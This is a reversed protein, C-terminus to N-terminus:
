VGVSLSPSVSKGPSTQYQAGAPLQATASVKSTDKKAAGIQSVGPVNFSVSGSFGPIFSALTTLGVLFAGGRRFRNALQVNFMRTAESLLWVTGATTGINVVKGVVGGQASAPVVQSVVPHVIASNGFGALGAGFVEEALATLDEGFVDPNSRVPLPSEPSAGLQARGGGASVKRAM